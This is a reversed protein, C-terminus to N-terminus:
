IPIDRAWAQAIASAGPLQRCHPPVKSSGLNLHYIISLGKCAIGAEMEPGMQKRTLTRLAQQALEWQRPGLQMGATETRIFQIGCFSSSKRWLQKQWPNQWVKVPLFSHVALQLRIQCYVISSSNSPWKRDKSYPSAPTSGHGSSVSKM